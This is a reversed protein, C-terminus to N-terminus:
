RWLLSASSFLRSVKSPVRRRGWEGIDRSVALSPGSSSGTCPAIHTSAWCERIHATRVGARRDVEGYPLMPMPRGTGDLFSTGNYDIGLHRFVTAWLDNPTLPRDKPTEAKATPRASWWARRARRREGAHEDGAALPRPRTAQVGTQTGISYEVRPTRGFEGTVM